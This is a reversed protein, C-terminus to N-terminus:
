NDKICRVSFGSEKPQTYPYVGDGIYDIRWSNGNMWDDENATWFYTHRKMHGFTLDIYTRGAPMICFGFDDTGNGGEIWGSTSKLKLAPNDGVFLLMQVWEDLDPIHWGPMCAQHAKNFSYLRGYESCNVPDNNYCWTGGGPNYNANKATWVQSGIRVVPYVQFDRQDQVYGIAAVTLYVPYFGTSKGDSIELNVTYRTEDFLVPPKWFVTSRTSDGVIVGEQFGWHYILSDGDPDYADADLRIFQSLSDGIFTHNVSVIVPAQNRSCGASLILGAAITGM